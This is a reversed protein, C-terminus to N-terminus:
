QTGGGGILDRIPARAARRAPGWAAAFVATTIIVIGAVYIGVDFVPTQYLGSAVVHGLLYAGALGLPLGIALLWAAERFGLRLLAGPSAGLAARIGYEGLRARAILATIAFVGLAALFLALVAFTIMMGAGAARLLSAGQVLQPLTTIKYVASHPLTQKITRRLSAIFPATAGHAQMVVILVSNYGAVRPHYATGSPYQQPVPNWVINRTVGVVRYTQGVHITKGIANEVSGFFRKALAENIVTEPVHNTIASSSFGHGALFPIHMVSFFHADVSPDNVRIDENDKNTGVPNATDMPHNVSSFPLMDTATANQVEPLTMLHPRLTTWAQNVDTDRPTFIMAVIRHSSSFGVPQALVRWLSTGLLGGAIVLACALAIQVTGLTRQLRRPGKGGTATPGHGLTKFLRQGTSILAPGFTVAIMAAATLVWAFLIVPAALVVQFSFLPPVVGFARLALTALWALLMATGGVALAIPLHEILILRVLGSRSVGLVRRLVFEHQRARQRVLGLNVTNAIALLLLLGAAIQLLVAGPGVGIEALFMAHVPKADITYGGKELYTRREPLANGLIGARARKLELDLQHQSVGPKRRVTMWYDIDTSNRAVMPTMVLPLWASMKGPGFFFDRPMVGVIRYSQKGVRLSQDLIDKEGGLRTQWFRYSIVTEPPGGPQDANAAPLRGLIPNMGLTRFLSPTVRQYNILQTKGDITAPSGIPWTSLGANSIGDLNRKLTLYSKVSVLSRTQGIAPLRERVVSLQKPQAYPLPKLIIGYVISFVAANAAVALGLMVWAAIAYGPKRALGRIVSRFEAAMDAFSSLFGKM